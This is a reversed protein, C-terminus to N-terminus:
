EPTIHMNVADVIRSHIEEIESLRTNRIRNIICRFDDAGCLELLIIFTSPSVAKAAKAIEHVTFSRMIKKLENKDIRGIDEISSITQNAAKGM